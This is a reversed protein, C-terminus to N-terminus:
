LIFSPPYIIILILFNIAKETEKVSTTIDSPKILGFKLPSGVVVSDELLFMLIEFFISSINYVLGM